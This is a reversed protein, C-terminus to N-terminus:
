SKCADPIKGTLESMSNLFDLQFSPEGLDDVILDGLASFFPVAELAYARISPELTTQSLEYLRPVVIEGTLKLNSKIKDMNEILYQSEDNGISTSVLGFADVLLQCEESQIPYWSDTIANNEKATRPRQGEEAPAITCASLTLLVLFILAFRMKM